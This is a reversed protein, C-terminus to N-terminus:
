TGSVDTGTGGSGMDVGTAGKSGSLAGPKKRREDEGTARERRRAISEEDYETTPDDPAKPVAAGGLGLIDGEREPEDRGEAKDSHVPKREDPRDM